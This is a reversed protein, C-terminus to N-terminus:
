EPLIPIPTAWSPPSRRSARWDNPLRHTQRDHVMQRRHKSGACPATPRYARGASRLRVHAASALARLTACTARLRLSTAAASTLQSPQAFFEIERIRRAGAQRKHGLVSLAAAAIPALQASRLSTTSPRQLLSAQRLTPRSSPCPLGRRVARNGGRHARIMGRAGLEPRRERLLARRGAGVPDLPTSGPDPRLEFRARFLLRRCLDGFPHVLMVRAACQFAAVSARTTLAPRRPRLAPHPRHRRITSIAPGLKGLRARSPRRRPIAMSPSDARRACAAAPNSDTPRWALGLRLREVGGTVKDLALGGRYRRRSMSRWAASSSACAPDGGRRAARGRARLRSVADLETALDLGIANPGAVCYLADNFRTRYPTRDIRATASFADLLAMESPYDARRGGEREMANWSVDRTPDHRARCALTLALVPSLPFTLQQLSAAREGLLNAM